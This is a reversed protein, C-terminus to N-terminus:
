NGVTEKQKRPLTAMYVGQNMETKINGTKTEYGEPIHVGAVYHETDTKGEIVLATNNEFFLKVDELKFGLMKLSVCLSESTTELQELDGRSLRVYVSAATKKKYNTFSRIVANPCTILPIIKSQLFSYRFWTEAFVYYEHLDFLRLIRMLLFHSLMKTVRFRVTPLTIILSGDKIMMGKLGRKNSCTKMGALYTTVGDAAHAQVLLHNGDITAIVDEVGDTKLSVCLGEESQVKELGPVQMALQKGDVKPFLVSPAGPMAVLHNKLYGLDETVSIWFYM